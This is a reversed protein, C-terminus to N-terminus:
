IEQNNDIRDLILTAHKHQETHEFHTEIKLLWDRAKYKQENKIYSSAINMMLEALETTEPRAGEILNIIKEADAHYGSRIFRQCLDILRTLSLGGRPNLQRFKLYLDHIWDDLDRENITIMFIHDVLKKFSKTKPNLKDINFLLELARINQPQQKIIKILEIRAKKFNLNKILTLSKELSEAIPDFDDEEDSGTLYETDISQSPSFFSRSLMLTFIAGTLLGGVHALYAIGPDEASNNALIEKLIWIPLVVLAPLRIYKFYAVIWIFFKIKKFGYVTAYSGMLGAIAGSAGILPVYSNANFYSFFAAAGIGSALYIILYKIKGFIKELSFGFILLFLMNGFIHWFNAHLFISTTATFLSFKAPKLGYKLFVVKALKREFENRSQQWVNFENAPPKIMGQNLEANWQDNFIMEIVLSKLQQQKDLRTLTSSNPSQNLGLTKKFIPVEIKVLPSQLYYNIAATLKKEDNQQFFLFILLTFIILTLTVLPPNSWDIRREAPIILFM